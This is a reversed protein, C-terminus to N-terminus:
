AIETKSSAPHRGVMKVVVGPLQLVRAMAVRHNGATGLIIANDQALYVPIPTGKAGWGRARLDAFLGDVRTNYQRVLAKLTACGRVTGGAAFRAAYNRYFLSTQEWPIGDVYHAFIAKAKETDEFLYRPLAQWRVHDVPGPTLRTAIKWRIDFPSLKSTGPSLRIAM